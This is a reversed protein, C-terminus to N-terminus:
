AAVTEAVPAPNWNSLPKQPKDTIVIIHPPSHWGGSSRVRVKCVAPGLAKDYASGEGSYMNSSRRALIGGANHVTRTEFSSYSGKSAASYQAQTMTLIPTPEYPASYKTAKAEYKARAIDNLMVQLRKADEITPNILSPAAPTSAKREAKREAQEDKFAALQADTPPTYIHEGMREINITHLMMPAPNDPGFAKGNKDYSRDTPGWLAVSVVRGTTASKNVKQIQMKGIFGGPIMEVEAASGGENELMAREYTLRLDFHATWRIFNEQESPNKIRSVYLDAVQKPTMRDFAVNIFSTKTLLDYPSFGHGWLKRASDNAAESTPHYLHALCHGCNALTYAVRQAPNMPETIAYGDADIPLLADAGEMAAIKTWADYRDQAAKVGALHKRQEAELRLIRSRRVAPDAKYLMHAIVGATRQTWYEAKSWQCAAYTRHRDHRAAQREARQANQHGFAQPGSEFTDAADEAEETRKERYREFREARDASRETASYDEDGIEDVLELLLDERGPTWTPAVMLCAYGAAEAQKPAWKFGADKLRKYTENDLRTSAYLRLKNDEPSYTAIM